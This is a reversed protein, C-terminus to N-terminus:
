LGHAQLTWVHSLVSRLTVPNQTKSNNKKKRGEKKEKKGEKRRKLTYFNLKFEGTM